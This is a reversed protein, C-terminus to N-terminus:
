SIIKIEFKKLTTKSVKIEIQITRSMKAFLTWIKGFRIRTSLKTDCKYMWETFNPFENKEQLFSLVFCFVLATNLVALSWSVVNEEWM